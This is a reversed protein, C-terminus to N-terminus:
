RVVEVAPRETRLVFETYSPEVRAAAPTPSAGPVAAKEEATTWYTAPELKEGRPKEANSGGPFICPPAGFGSASRRGTGTVGAKL